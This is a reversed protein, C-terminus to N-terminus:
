RNGSSRTRRRGQKWQFLGAVTVWATSNRRGALRTSCPNPCHCLRRHLPTWPGVIDWARMPLPGSVVAVRDTFLELRGLLMAFTLVLKGADTIGAYHHTVDGLGPGLNNLSAVM